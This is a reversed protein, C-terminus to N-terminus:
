AKKSKEAEKEEEIVSLKERKAKSILECPITPTSSEAMALMPKLAQLQEPPLSSTMKQVSSMLQEM